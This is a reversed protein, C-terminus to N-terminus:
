RRFNIIVEGAMCMEHSAEAMDTTLKTVFKTRTARVSPSADAALPELNEKLQTKELYREKAEGYRRQADQVLMQLESQDM